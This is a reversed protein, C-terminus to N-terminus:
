KRKGSKKDPPARLDGTMVSEWAAEDLKGRAM